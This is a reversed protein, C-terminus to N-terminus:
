SALSLGSSSRLRSFYSSCYSHIFPGRRGQSFDSALDAVMNTWRRKHLLCLDKQCIRSIIQELLHGDSEIYRADIGLADHFINFKLLM